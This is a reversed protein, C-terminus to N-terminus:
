KLISSSYKLFNEILDFDKIFVELHCRSTNEFQLIKRLFDILIKKINRRLDFILLRHPVVSTTVFKKCLRCIYMKGIMLFSPKNFNHSEQLGRIVSSCIHLRHYSLTTLLLNPILPSRKLVSYQAVKM